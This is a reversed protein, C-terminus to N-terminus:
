IICLMIVVIIVVSVIVLGSMCWLILGCGSYPDLCLAIERSPYLEMLSKLTQCM